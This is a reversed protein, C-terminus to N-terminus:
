VLPYTPLTAIGCNNDHNRSMWIYGKNGWTENWSNKVIWYDTMDDTQGYGVVLMAHDLLGKASHCDPNYYVGEKYNQFLASRADVAVAIPGVHAVAIELATENGFKVYQFGTDTAGVDEKKFACTGTDTGTYPYTKETDIGHNYQIYLFCNHPLGGNCGDNDFESSCDVIQQESLSVLRRHRRYTQGELSGTAAFAYCAGCRGQDKVNTVYGHDRWDVKDPLTQVNEPELFLSAQPLDELSVDGMPALGKRQADFEEPSLDSYKNLAVSFSSEGEAYKRNQEKVSSWHQVFHFFRLEETATDPYNKNYKMKFDRWERLLNPDAAFTLCQVSLDLLLVKPWM